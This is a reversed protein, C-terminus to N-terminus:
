HRREPRTPLKCYKAKHHVLGWEIKPVAVFPPPPAYLTAHWIRCGHDVHRLLFPGDDGIRPHHSGLGPQRCLYVDLDSLNLKLLYSSINPCALNDACYIKTMCSETTSAPLQPLQSKGITTLSPRKSFVVTSSFVLVAVSNSCM